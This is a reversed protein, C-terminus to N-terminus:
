RRQHQSIMEAFQTYDEAEALFLKSGSLLKVFGAREKDYVDDVGLDNYYEYARIMPNKYYSFENRQIAMVKRLLEDSMETQSIKNRNSKQLLYITDLKARESISDRGFIDEVGKKQNNIFLGLFPIKSPDVKSFSFRHGWTSTYPMCLLENTSARYYSLDEGLFKYGAKLLQYTTYTKGTDPPALLLFSSDTHPNQLSAAHVVLDGNGIIRLLMLDTLHVGVPYMSDMKFKVLNLYTRNVYVKLRNGQMGSVLMACRLGGYVREYYVQDKNVKYYTSFQESHGELYKSPNDTISLEIQYLENGQVKFVNGDAIEGLSFYYLIKTPQSIGLSVMGPIIASRQVQEM